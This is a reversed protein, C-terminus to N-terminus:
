VSQIINQLVESQARILRSSAELGRQIVVLNTFEGALDVNSSELAGSQIAGRSGSGPTGFFIQGSNVSQNFNNNGELLLGEPNTVTAAQLQMQQGQMPDATASSNTFVALAGALQGVSGADTAQPNIAAYTGGESPFHVIETTGTTPNPNPRVSLRDGNSYTGTIAGNTGISYNVLTVTKIDTTVPTISRATANAAFDAPVSAVGGISTGLVNQSADIFKAVQFRLPLNILGNTDPSAGDLSSTGRLRNGAATVLNGGSDLSFNGSRTLFFSPVGTPSADQAVVFFGEGQILLDSKRGTFQTGGQSFNAAIEQVYTGNGVQKPNTGGLSGNAPTGGSVTNSFVTAFNAKASKFGTTNVNAINNSIVDLSVQNARIGSAATFLGQPM